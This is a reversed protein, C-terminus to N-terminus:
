AGNGRVTSRPLARVVGWLETISARVEEHREQDRQDHLDRWQSLLALATTAEGVTHQLRDMALRAQRFQWGAWGVALALLTDLLYSVAITTASGITVAADPTM